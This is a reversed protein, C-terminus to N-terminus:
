EADLLFSTCCPWPIKQFSLPKAFLNLFGVPLYLCIGKIKLSQEAKPDHFAVKNIEDRNTWIVRVKQEGKIMLPEKRIMVSPFAVQLAMLVILWRSDKFNPVFQKENQQKNIQVITQQAVRKNELNQQFYNRLYASTFSRQRATAALIGSPNKQYVTLTKKLREGYLNPDSQCLVSFIAARKALPAEKNVVTRELSQLYHASCAQVCKASVNYDDMLWNLNHQKTRRRIEDKVHREALNTKEFSNMREAFDTSILPHWNTCVASGFQWWPLWSAAPVVARELSFLVDKLICDRFPEVMSIGAHDPVGPNQTLYNISVTPNCLLFLSRLRPFHHASRRVVGQRKRLGAANQEFRALRDLLRVIRGRREKMHPASSNCVEMEAAIVKEYRRVAAFFTNVYHVNTIDLLSLDDDPFMHWMCQLQKEECVENGNAQAPDFLSALTIPRSALRQCAFPVLKSCPFSRVFRDLESEKICAVLRQCFIDSTMEIDERLLFPEWWLEPVVVPYLPQLVPDSYAFLLAAYYEKLAATPWGSFRLRTLRSLDMKKYITKRQLINKYRIRLVRQQMELPVEDFGCEQALSRGERGARSVLAVSQVTSLFVNDSKNTLGHELFFQFALRRTTTM